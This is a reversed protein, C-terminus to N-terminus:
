VTNTENEHRHKGPNKLFTSPLNTGDSSLLARTTVTVEQGSGVPAPVGAGQLDHSDSQFRKSHIM